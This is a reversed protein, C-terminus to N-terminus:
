RFAKLKIDQLIKLLQEFNGWDNNKDLEWSHGWVHFHAPEQALLDQAYVPWTLGGYEKRNYMHLTTPKEFPDYEGGTFGVKVTRAETFGGRKVIDKIRADFRGRPYSFSTVDIGLIDVLDARSGIIELTADVSNVEKLDMPHQRTHAGIKHGRAVLGRIDDATLKYDQGLWGTTIYFMGRFGYNELLTATKLDLIHGDDFSFEFTM